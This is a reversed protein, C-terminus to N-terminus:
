KMKVPSGIWDTNDPLEEGKMLLSLSDVTVHNGIKSDYLIITRSGITTQKGIEVSGIKMIRDEFLHTQPGCGDNMMTEDGIFVMDFETIDTTNLWVKKGTRVGLIRMLIPLWMTGRLLDLFFNVCLAEYVCTVAESFWVKYHYMPLATRKYKGVLIWKFLVTFLFAPLAMFGLYYFPLLLLFKPISELLLDHSYAIFLVSSILVITQPLIIRIGEIIGRALKLKKTPAFTQKTEFNEMRQRSPLGIPPSGFWDKENSNKMQEASPPKSLVGILMDDGLTYGQPILGSNGVFSRNGIVTELM